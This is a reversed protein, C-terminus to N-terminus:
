GDLRGFSQTKRAHRIMRSRADFPQVVAKGVEGPHHRAAFGEVEDREGGYPRMEIVRLAGGGNRVDGREHM